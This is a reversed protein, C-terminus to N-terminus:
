RVLSVFSDKWMEENHNMMYFNISILTNAPIHYGEIDMDKTTIRNIIPLPAHMRLAEKM